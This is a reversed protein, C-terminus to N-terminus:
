RWAAKPQRPLKVPAGHLAALEKELAKLRLSQEQIANVLIMDLHNYNIKLFDGSETSDELHASEVMFPAVRQM